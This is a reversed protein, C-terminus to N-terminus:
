DYNIRWLSFHHQEMITTGRCIYGHQRLYSEMNTRAVINSTHIWIDPPLHSGQEMNAVVLSALIAQGEQKRDQSGLDNDFSIVDYNCNAIYSRAEHATRAVDWIYLDQVQRPVDRVDDIFLAREKNV